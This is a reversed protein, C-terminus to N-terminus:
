FKGRGSLELGLGGEGEGEEMPLGVRRREKERRGENVLGFLGTGGFWEDTGRGGMSGKWGEGELVIRAEGEGGMKM